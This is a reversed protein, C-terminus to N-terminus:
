AYKVGLLKYSGSNSGDLNYLDIKNINASLTNLKGRFSTWIRATLPISYGEVQGDKKIIFKYLTETSFGNGANIYTFSSESDASLAESNTKNWAWGYSGSSSIDNLRLHKDNSDSTILVELIIEDYNTLDSTFVLSSINSFTNSSIFTVVGDSTPLNTLSSGDGDPALVSIGINSDKLITTDYPEYTNATITPEKGGLKDDIKASSWADVSNTVSDNIILGTVDDWNATISLPEEANNDVKSAWRKGDHSVSTSQPYPYDPSTNSWDGKYNATSVVTNKADVAIQANEEANQIDTMNDANLNISDINEANLDISDYHPEISDVKEVVTDKNDSVEQATVNIEGHATNTQDIASNWSTVVANTESLWTNMLGFFGIVGKIPTVSWKIINDIITM